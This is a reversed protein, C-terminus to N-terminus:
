YPVDDEGVRPEFGDTDFSSEDASMLAGDIDNFPRGADSMKTVIKAKCIATEPINFSSGEIEGGLAEVTESIMQMKFDVMSQGRKTKKGSDSANPMALYKTFGIGSFMPDDIIQLELIINQGTGAKNPQAYAPKTLILKYVGDDALKGEEVDDFPKPANFQTM